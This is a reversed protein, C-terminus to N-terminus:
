NEDLISRISSDAIDYPTQGNIDKQTISSPVFYKLLFKVQDALNNECAYHLANREGPLLVCCDIHSIYFVKQNFYNKLEKASKFAYDFYEAYIDAIKLSRVLNNKMTEFIFQTKEFNYAFANNFIQHNFIWCFHFLYLFSEDVDYDESFLYSVIGEMVPFGKENADEESAFILNLFFMTQEARKYITIPTFESLDTNKFYTKLKQPDKLLNVDLLSFISTMADLVINEVNPDEEFIPAFIIPFSHVKPHYTHNVILEYVGYIYQKISEKIVEPPNSTVYQKMTQKAQDIEMNFIPSFAIKDNSIQSIQIPHVNTEDDYDEEEEEEYSLTDNEDQSDDDDEEEDDLDINFQNNEQNTDAEETGPNQIYNKFDNEQTKILDMINSYMNNFDNFNNTDEVNQFAQDLELNQNNIFKDINPIPHKQTQAIRKENQIHRDAITKLEKIKSKKQMQFICFDLQKYKKLREKEKKKKESVLNSSENGRLTDAVPKADGKTLSFFSNGILNTLNM